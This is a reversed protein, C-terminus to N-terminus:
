QKLKTFYMCPDFAALSVPFSNYALSALCVFKGPNKRFINHWWYYPPKAQRFNEAAGM